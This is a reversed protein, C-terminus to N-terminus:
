KESPIPIIECFDNNMIEQYEEQMVNRWEQHKTADEYSCLKFDILIKM